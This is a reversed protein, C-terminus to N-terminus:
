ARMGAFDDARCLLTGGAALANNLGPMAVVYLANLNALALVPRGLSPLLQWRRNLVHVRFRLARM